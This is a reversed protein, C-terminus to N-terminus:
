MNFATSIWIFGMFVCSDHKWIRGNLFFGWVMLDICDKVLVWINFNQINEM